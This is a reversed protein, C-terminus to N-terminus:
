SAVFFSTGVGVFRHYDRAVSKGFLNVRRLKHLDAKGCRVYNTECLASSLGNKFTLEAVFFVLSNFSVGIEDMECFYRMLRSLDLFLVPLESVKNIEFFEIITHGDEGDCKSDDCIAIVSHNLRDQYMFAEDRALFLFILHRDHIASSIQLTVATPM